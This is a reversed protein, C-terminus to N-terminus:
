KGVQGNPLQTEDPLNNHMRQHMYDLILMELSSNVTLVMQDETEFKFEKFYFSRSVLAHALINQDLVKCMLEFMDVEVETQNLLLDNLSNQWEATADDWNKIWEQIKLSPKCNM